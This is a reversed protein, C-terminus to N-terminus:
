LRSGGPSAALDAINRADIAVCSKPPALAASPPRIIIAKELLGEDFLSQLDNASPPPGPCFAIIPRKADGLRVLDLDTLSPPGMFSVIVAGPPSKKILDCFEGSPVVVPRLPDIPLVRELQIPVGARLLTQRFATMQVDTAPNRFAATDRRLVIIQGGPKLSALAQQAVLRGSAAFTSRDLRPGLGNRGDLWVALWVALATLLVAIRLIRAM